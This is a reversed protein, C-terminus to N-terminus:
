ALPVRRALAILADFVSRAAAAADDRAPGPPLAIELTRLFAPWRASDRGALFSRPADPLEAAVRRALVEGGLAAGEVVYAYGWAQADGVSGPAPPAVACRPMAALAELGTGLARLDAAARHARPELVWGVGAARHGALIEEIPLFLGHFVALLRRYCATSLPADVGLAKEAARHGGATAARLQLRASGPSVPDPDPLRTVEGVIRQGTIGRPAVAPM